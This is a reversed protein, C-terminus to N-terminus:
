KSFQRKLQMIFIIVFLVGTAIWHVLDIESLSSISTKEAFHMYAVLLLFSLGISGVLVNVFRVLISMEQLAINLMFLVIFEVWFTTMDKWMLESALATHTFASVLYPIIICEAMFIKDNNKITYPAGLFVIFFTIITEVPVEFIKILKGQQDHKKWKEHLELEEPTYYSDDYKSHDPIYDMVGM